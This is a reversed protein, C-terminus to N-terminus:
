ENQLPYHWSLNQRCCSFSPQLPNKTRHGLTPKKRKNEKGWNRQKNLQMVNETVVRLSKVPDKRKVQCDKKDRGTILTPV